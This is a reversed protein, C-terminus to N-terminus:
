GKDHQRDGSRSAIKVGSEPIWDKNGQHRKNHARQEHSLGLIGIYPGLVSRLRRLLWFNRREIRLSNAPDRNLISPTAPKTATTKPLPSQGWYNEPHPAVEFDSRLREIPAALFRLRWQRGHCRVRLSFLHEFDSGPRRFGRMSSQISCAGLLEIPEGAFDLGNLCFSSFPSQTKQYRM